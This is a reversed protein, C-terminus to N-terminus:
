TKNALEQHEFRSIFCLSIVYLDHLHAYHTKGGQMIYWVYSAKVYIYIHININLMDNYLNVAIKNVGWICPWFVNLVHGFLMLCM